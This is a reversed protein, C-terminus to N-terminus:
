RKLRTLWSEPRIEFNDNPKKANSFDQGDFCKSIQFLADANGDILMGEELTISESATFTQSTNTILDNCTGGDIVITKYLINEHTNIDNCYVKDVNCDQKSQYVRVYKRM